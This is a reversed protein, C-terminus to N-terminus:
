TFAGLGKDETLVFHEDFREKMERHWQGLLAKPALILVSRVATRLVLEKLIIGGEITKGLGVEDALIAAPSLANLVRDVVHLQYPLPELRDFLVTPSLLKDLTRPVTAEPIRLSM